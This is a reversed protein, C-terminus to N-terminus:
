LLAKKDIMRQTKSLQPTKKRGLNAKKCIKGPSRCLAQCPPQPTSFHLLAIFSLTASLATRLSPRAHQFRRTRNETFVAGSSGVILRAATGRAFFPFILSFVLHFRAWPV